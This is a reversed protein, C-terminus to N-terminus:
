AMVCRLSAWRAIPPSSQLRAWRPLQLPRRAQSREHCRSREAPEMLRDLVVRKLLRLDRLRCLGQGVALSVLLSAPRYEVCGPFSHEFRLQSKNLPSQEAFSVGM